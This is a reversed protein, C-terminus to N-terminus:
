SIPRTAKWPRNGEIRVRFCRASCHSPDQSPIDIGVARDKVDRWMERAAATDLKLNLTGPYAAFGLANELAAAVRDVTMFSAARGLDSYVVGNLRREAGM